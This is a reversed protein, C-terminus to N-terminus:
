LDDVDVGEVQLEEALTSPSVAELGEWGAPL